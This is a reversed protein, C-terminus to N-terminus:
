RVMDFLLVMGNSCGVVAFCGHSTIDVSTVEINLGEIAFEKSISDISPIAPLPLLAIPAKTVAVAKPKCASQPPAYEKQNEKGAALMAASENDVDMEHNGSLVVSM